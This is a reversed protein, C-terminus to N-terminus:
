MIKCGDDSERKVRRDCFSEGVYNDPVNVYNPYAGSFVDARGLPPRTGLYTVSTLNNCWYFAHNTICAVSSPILYNISNKYNPYVEVSTSGM